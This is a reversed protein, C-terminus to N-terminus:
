RRNRNLWDSRDNMIEERQEADDGEHTHTEHTSELQGGGAATDPLRAPPDQLRLPAARVPQGAEQAPVRPAGHVAHAPVGHRLVRRGHPPAQSSLNM